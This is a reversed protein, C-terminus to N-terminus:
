GWFQREATRYQIAEAVHELRIRDAAALDAITRAVKLIRTYSRASFAQQAMARELLSETEVDIGCHKQIQRNTMRANSATGDTGFRLRQVERAAAVQERMATSGEGPRRDRLDRYAVRPVDVHIDIRDLLPGSVRSMYRAIQHPTCRCDRKPDGFYDCPCGHSRSEFPYGDQAAEMPGQAHTAETEPV